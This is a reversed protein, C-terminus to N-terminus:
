DMGGEILLLADNVYLAMAEEKYEEALRSALKIFFNLKDLNSINFSVIELDDLIQHGQEDMWYGYATDTSFDIDMIDLIRDIHYCESNYVKGPLLLKIKNNNDYWLVSKDNAYNAWLEDNIITCGGFKITYDYIDVNDFRSIIKKQDLITIKENELKLIKKFLM